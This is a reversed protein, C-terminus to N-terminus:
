VGDAAVFGCRGKECGTRAAVIERRLARLEALRADVRELAVDLRWRESSCTASDADHASWAEIIEDLSLGLGQMKRALHIREITDDRGPGTRLIWRRWKFEALKETCPGEAEPIRMHGPSM